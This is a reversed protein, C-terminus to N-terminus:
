IHFGCKICSHNYSNIKSSGCNICENSNNKLKIVKSNSDTNEAKIVENISDAYKLNGGCQCTDFDEPSEGAQLKYYGGCKECYLYGRNVNHFEQLKNNSDM